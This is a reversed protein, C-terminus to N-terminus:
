CYCRYITLMNLIDKGADFSQKCPFNIFLMLYEPQFLGPSVKVLHLKIPIESVNSTESAISNLEITKLNVYLYTFSSNLFRLDLCNKSKEM